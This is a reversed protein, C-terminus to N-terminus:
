HFIAYIVGNVYYLIIIGVIVLVSLVLFMGLNHASYQESERLARLEQLTLKFRPKKFPSDDLLRKAMVIIIIILFFLYLILLALTHKQSIFVIMNFIGHCLIGFFLALFHFIRRNNKHIFEGMAIFYGSIAGFLVHGPLSRIAAVSLSARHFDSLDGTRQGEMLSEISGSLIYVFDEYVAFGAAVAVYYIMGDFPENFFESRTVVRRVVWYKLGEEIFAAIVFCRFLVQILDSPFRISFFGPFCSQLFTIPVSM